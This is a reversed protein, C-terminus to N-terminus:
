DHFRRYPRAHNRSRSERRDAWGDFVVVLYLVVLVACLVLTVATLLSITM